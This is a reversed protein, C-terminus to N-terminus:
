TQGVNEPSVEVNRFEEMTMNSQVGLRNSTFFSCLIILHDCISVFDSCSLEYESKALRNFINRANCANEYKEYAMVQDVSILNKSERARRQQRQGKAQSNYKKKRWLECKAKSSIIVTPKIGKIDIEYSLLFTFFEKLALIYTKISSAKIEREVRYDSLYNDCVLDIFNNFFTTLDRVGLLVFIMKVTTLTNCISSGKVKRDPGKMYKDFQPLTHLMEEGFDEDDLLPNYDDDTDSSNNADSDIDSNADYYKM